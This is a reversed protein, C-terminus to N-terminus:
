QLHAELNYSERRILNVFYLNILNSFDYGRM